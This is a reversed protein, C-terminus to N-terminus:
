CHHIILLIINIIINFIIIIIKMLMAIIKKFKFKDSIYITKYEHQKKKNNYKM